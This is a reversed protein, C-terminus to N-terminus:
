IFLHKNWRHYITTHNFLELLIVILQASCYENILFPIWPSRHLRCIVTLAARSLREGKISENLSVRCISLFSNDGSKITQFSLSFFFFSCSSTYICDSNSPLTILTSIIKLVWDFPLSYFSHIMLCVIWCHKWEIADCWVDMLEM